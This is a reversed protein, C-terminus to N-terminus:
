AESGISQYLPTQDSRRWFIMRWAYDTHDDHSGLFYDYTKSELCSSLFDRQLSLKGKGPIAQHIQSWVRLWAVLMNWLWRWWPTRSRQWMDWAICYVKVLKLGDGTRRPRVSPYSFPSTNSPLVLFTYGYIKGIADWQTHVHAEARRTGCHRHNHQHMVMCICCDHIYLHSPGGFM